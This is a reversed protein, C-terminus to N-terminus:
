GGRLESIGKILSVLPLFLSVIILGIIGGLLVILLPEMISVLSSVATDVEADYIDAIKLLMTDLEGTEEGVNIMNVVIDDFVRNAALPEAMNEGEKVGDHVKSIAITVVENGTANKVINLAELIPVGSKLLTGLTRCFRATLSKRVIVGIIPLALKIRDLVLRGTKTRGWAKILIYLIFPALIIVFWFEKVSESIGMLMQTLPPMERGLAEFVQQFKPVIFTMIAFVVIVAITIVVAPYLSAGIIKRRLAEIKEMFESLRRLVEELVGGAEGAKVMNVYLKDFVKPHRGMAESLSSGSEVDEAIETLINKLMSPKMQNALIKLSRVVPLGADLLVSFQHTFQTLQKHTVGGIVFRRKKKAPIAEVVPAKVERKTTPRPAATTSAEMQPNAEKEMGKVSIPRYGKSRAKLIAQSASTAELQISIRRGQSDVSEVLYLAM